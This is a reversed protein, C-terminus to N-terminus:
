QQNTVTSVQEGAHVFQAGGTGGLHRQVRLEPMRMVEDALREAEQEAPDNPHFVTLKSQFAGSSLFRLVAQNGITPQLYFVPHMHQSVPLKLPSQRGSHVPNDAKKKQQSKM